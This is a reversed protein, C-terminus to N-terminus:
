NVPSKEAFIYTRTTVEGEYPMRIIYEIIRFGSDVLKNKIL